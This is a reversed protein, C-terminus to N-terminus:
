HDKNLIFLILNGTRVRIRVPSFLVVNSTGDRFGLRLSDNHLNWKLGGTRIGSCDSIPILSVITGPPINFERGRNVPMLMGYKDLFKISARQSFKALASLNGAEHDIRGGTAGLVSIEAYRRRVVYSLAKELDTSNQNRIKKTKVGRLKKLTAATVSDFDGIILHPRVGFRAATNAGGDACVFFDGPRVTKFFLRKSPAKGNALIVARRIM